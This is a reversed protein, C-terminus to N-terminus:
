SGRDTRGLLRQLAAVYDARTLAGRDILALLLAEHRQAASAEQELLHTPQTAARLQQTSEPAIPLQEVSSTPPEREMEETRPPESRRRANPLVQTPTGSVEGPKGYERDLARRVSSLTGVLARVARGTAEAIASPGARDLPDAFAISVTRNADIAVPVALHVRALSEPVLWIAEREVTGRDLDIVVSGAERALLDALAEEGVLNREIAASVTAVSEDDALIGERRLLEALGSAM